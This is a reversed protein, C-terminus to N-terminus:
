VDPFFKALAIQSQLNGTEAYATLGEKAEDDMLYDLFDPGVAEFFRGEPTRHIQPVTDEVVISDANIIPEEDPSIRFLLNESLDHTNEPIM